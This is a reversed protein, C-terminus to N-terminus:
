ANKAQPVGGVLRVDQPPSLEVGGARFAKLIAIQLESKIAGRDSLNPVICFIDFTLATAGFETLLVAPAPQRLVASHEALCAKLIEIVQEPDSDYAVNIRINIRGLTNAHTWNKVVGTILESNPIIVSAKDFTEIETARVSIRRVFGEDGKVVIQDGVRIPREALLILGSVFNSVISQLGFGIGVSLAGAVLAIKQPDIGIEGLAIVLAVIFGVYGLITVISLQLSPEIATHPMVEKELWRQVLRTLGAVVLFLLIAGFVAGFSITFDGIRIGLTVNKIAEFLDSAAVEWRGLALGLIVLVFLARVIGSTLKGLLGIRRPEIGLQRAFKRGGPTDASLTRSIVADTVILLLYLTAILTITFVVRGAIFSAFSAYGTLLAVGIAAVAIWALLRVGPIRRGAEEEETERRGTLLHVLLAGIIVAFLMKAAADIVQPAGITRHLARIVIFAGLVRGGWVLHAFLWQSTADDFGVLRRAPDDPALVSTAAARALAAAGIGIVLSLLLRRYDPPVLEFQDLLMLVAAVGLPTTTTRRLFVLLAALAKGYRTGVRSILAIRRWWRVLGVAFGFLAALTLGASALRARGGKEWAFSWWDRAFQVLRAAHDPMAALVDRWFFPDLVNPSRQFLTEAYATRRRDSLADTLQAARTQLLQVQKIAADVEARQQALRARETAITADESPADKAPAAGLGKLRADLDALRPELDALKDRLSDRLPSLQQSLDSLTRVGLGGRKATTEIQDLSARIPDIGVLPAQQALAASAFALAVALALGSMRLLTAFRFM